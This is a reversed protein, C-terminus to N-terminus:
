RAVILRKTDTQKGDVYLTYHYTGAALMSIDVNAQGAGRNGLSITKVVQGKANTITLRASTTNEPVHYRITATGSVPNPANQELSGASNLNYTSQGNALKNVLQKLEEIQKQQEQIAGILVPILGQYNVGEFEVEPSIQETRDANYQPPQVMLAVLSPFVQKLEDAILGMQEGKPLAMSQFAETKYQYAAPKLKMLHEVANELPAIGTKLKRDSSGYLSTAYVRGDFYGAYTNSELALDNRGGASSYIGYRRKDGYQAPAQALVGYVYGTSNGGIGTAQVGISGGIAVIGTGQGPVMSANVVIGKSAGAFTNVVNLAASSKGTRVDLLFAPTITGIGVLGNGSVTLQDATGLMLRSTGGVARLRVDGAGGGGTAVGIKLRYYPNGIRLDGETNTVDWAGGAIDLKATPALTGVGVNGTTSITMKPVANITLHLKGTANSTATGFDVDANNGAYSGIYGRLVSNEYLGMYM